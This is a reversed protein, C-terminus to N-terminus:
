TWPWITAWGQPPTLLSLLGPQEPTSSLWAGRDRESMRDACGLAQGRVQVQLDADALSEPVVGNVVVDLLLLGHPDLGQAVQTM